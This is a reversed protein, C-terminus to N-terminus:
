SESKKQYVMEVIKIFDDLHIVTFQNCNLMTEGSNPIEKIDTTSKITKLYSTVLNKSAKYMNHIYTKIIQRVVKDLESAHEKTFEFSKDKQKIMFEIHDVIEDAMMPTFSQLSEISTVNNLKFRFNGLLQQQISYEVIKYFDWMDFEDDSVVFKIDSENDQIIFKLTRKIDTDLHTVTSGDNLYDVFFDDYEKSYYMIPKDIPLIIYVEDYRDAYDSVTGITKAVFLLNRIPVDFMDEAVENAINHIFENSDRPGTRYNLSYIKGTDFHGHPSGHLLVNKMNNFVQTSLTHLLLRDKHRSTNSDRQDVFDKLGSIVDSNIEPLIYDVFFKNNLVNDYNKSEALLQKIKM